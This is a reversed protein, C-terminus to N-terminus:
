QKRKMPTTHIKRTRPERKQTHTAANLNKKRKNRRDVRKGSDFMSRRASRRDFPIDQTVGKEIPRKQKQTKNVLSEKVSRLLQNQESKVRIKGRGERENPFTAEQEKKFSCRNQFQGTSRSIVVTIALKNQFEMKQIIIKQEASSDIERRNRTKVQVNSFKVCGNWECTSQM